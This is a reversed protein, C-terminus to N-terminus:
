TPTTVLLHPVLVLSASCMNGPEYLLLQSELGPTSIELGLTNGGMAENSTSESGPTSSTSCTVTSVYTHICICVCICVPAIEWRVERGAPPVDEQNGKPSGAPICTEKEM